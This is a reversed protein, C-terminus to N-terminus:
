GEGLRWDRCWRLYSLVDAAEFRAKASGYQTLMRFSLYQQDPLPLFPARRWWAPRALRRLQRIATPWLRPHGLVAVAVRTM